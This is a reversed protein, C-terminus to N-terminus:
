ATVIRVNDEKLLRIGESIMNRVANVDRNHYTGCEPCTWQRVSLDKVESNRYGCKSCLQSSAYWRDVKLFLKGARKMKYQVMTLFRGWGVSSIEKALCRNKVMGKINLDECIFVMCRDAIKRSLKHHFDKRQNALKRQEKAVKIRAKEWNKSGTHTTKDYQKRSLEQQLRRLRKAHNQIWRPNEVTEAETGNGITLFYKLGMDAALIDNVSIQRIVEIKNIVTEFLISIEYVGASRSITARLISTGKPCLSEFTRGKPLVIRVTGVKPLKIYPLGEKEMFGINNNTFKTTYKNGFPKQKSKYKPFKARGEFFNKYAEDVQELASELAFKDSLNLFEFEKKLTPLYNKKYESVSLTREHEKYYAIRDNLYRNKVFRANGIQQAFAQIETDNPLMRLILGYNHIQCGYPELAKNKEETINYARGHFRFTGDELKEATIAM